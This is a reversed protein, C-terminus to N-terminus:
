KRGRKRLIALKRVRELVKARRRELLEENPIPLVCLRMGRMEAFEAPGRLFELWQSPLGEGTVEVFERVLKKLGEKAEASPPALVRQAPPLGIFTADLRKGLLNAVAIATREAEAASYLGALGVHHRIEKEVLARMLGLITEHYTTEGDVTLHYCKSDAGVLVRIVREGARVKLKALLTPKENEKM